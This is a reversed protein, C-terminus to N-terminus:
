IRRAVVSAPRLGLRPVREAVVAAPYRVSWRGPNGLPGATRDDCSAQRVRGRPGSAPLSCQPRQSESLGMRACRRHDCVTPRGGCRLCRLGLPLRYRGAFGTVQAAFVGDEQGPGQGRSTSRRPSTLRGLRRGACSAPSASVSLYSIESKRPVFSALRSGPVTCRPGCGTERHRSVTGGSWRPLGPTSASSFSM